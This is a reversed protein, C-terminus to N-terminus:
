NSISEVSIRGERIVFKLHKVENKFIDVTWDYDGGMQNSGDWGDGKPDPVCVFIAEENLILREEKRYIKRLSYDLISVMLDVCHLCSNKDYLIKSKGTVSFVTQNGPIENGEDDYKDKEQVELLLCGGYRDDNVVEVFAHFKSYNKSRIENKNDLFLNTFDIEKLIDSFMRKQIGKTSTQDFKAVLNFNLLFSTSSSNTVFDEKIKM